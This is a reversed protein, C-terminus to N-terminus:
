WVIIEGLKVVIVGDVMQVSGNLPYFPMNEVNKDKKLKVHTDYDCIVVPSNLVYKCYADYAAYVDWIFDNVFVTNIDVGIIGNVKGFDSIKDYPTDCGNNSPIGIFAVTTEGPIYDPHQEIRDLVRTMLSFSSQASLDKKIYVTNSITINQWIVFFVSLYIVGSIFNKYFAKNSTKLFRYVFVPVIIWFFWVAYTMLDHLELGYTIIHILGLAVPLMGFLFLITLIRFPAFRKKVIAIIATFVMLLISIIFSICVVAQDYALHLLQRILFIVTEYIIIIPNYGSSLFRLANIRSELELGTVSYVALGVFHYIIYGLIIVCIGYIGKTIVCKIEKEDFLDLISVALILVVAVCVYSQYIGMSIFLLIASPILHYIKVHKKWIYAAAVALLLAFANFDAEYLYTAYQATVTINTVVVGSILFMVIRSQVDFTKTILYSSASYWFLSIIGILWPLALSNRFINRYLPVIYRGLRIKWEEEIDTAVFANLWDHSMDNNLMVYAHAALGLIFTSVFCFIINKKENQWYSKIKEYM